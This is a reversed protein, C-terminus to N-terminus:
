EGVFEEDWIYMKELPKLAEKIKELQEIMDSVVTNIEDVLNALEAVEKDDLTLGEGLQKLALKHIRILQRRIEPPRFDDDDAIVYRVADLADVAHLIEMTDYDQWLKDIGKKNLKFL